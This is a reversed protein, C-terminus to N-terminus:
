FTLELGLRFLRPAGYYFLPQTADGAAALYLPLLEAEGEVYGNQDTDAWARYRQSEYPIAEPHAQYAQDAFAQLQDPSPALSGTDRRLAVINRTNLLNRIDLYLSGGMRGWRLPRRLRLDVTKTSPLRSDNPLGLISDGAQNTRSYPLGSAYRLITTGEWEALPRVGAIRPGADAPVTGTVIATLSHRRDYDLPYEVRAPYITDGTTPDIRPLRYVLFADSSFATADQLTYGLRGGFGHAFTRELLVEVGKVSGADANGFISSDPNTGLPVSAVLGDLRRVYVNTRVTLLRRARVRLSFEYQTANEFGLDPNGQRFRGTRTTDDFAADVLYQYDPAQQFKGFSVVLTAQRLVMSAAFRPSLARETTAKRGPLDGRGTFQDYRIGATFAFDSARAQLEAYVAGTSPSFNSSSAPPVSDGVPLYALVRQFTEVRQGSYEAGLALDSHRGAPISVDLRGRYEEFQNWALSGRSADSLFFAPVGWPTRESFGPPMFGPLPKRATATDQREAIGEGLFDIRQGTFAGFRYDPVETPTGRIFERNFYGLHLDTTINPGPFTQQLHASLLTGTVRTAPMYIPDYKYAQDYLLHQDLSRVALLRLTRRSGLPITFKAALDATEGSNHPLVWPAAHRPDRPDSPAPAAVPDADLRGSFDAVGIFRIGAGLPGEASLIVRDLGHDGGDQLPRDTEYVARGGWRDAGDRTSLNVLASVAQGYRASFGNTILSAEALLDPPLRIGLAGTSQDVQNKLGLGDVIFAQQGLRGGRYSEGVAGSALAIAEDVSSVPLRRLDENTFRQQDQVALPDLVSNVREVIVEIPELGVPDPQLRFAVATTQGAGVLVSDRLQPRYGIAAAEVSHWGAALDRLRFFGLADTTTVFRGGDATVRAGSLPVKGVGEELVTGEVAGVAQAELSQLGALYLLGTVLLTRLM